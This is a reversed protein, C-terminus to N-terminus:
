EGVKEANKAKQSFTDTSNMKSFFMSFKECDVALVGVTEFPEREVTCPLTTIM